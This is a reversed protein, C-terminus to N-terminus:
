GKEDSGNSERKVKAALMTRITRFEDDSLEGESNLDRFKTLLEVSSARENRMGRRALGILYAGVAVLMGGVAMYLVVQSVPQALFEAM